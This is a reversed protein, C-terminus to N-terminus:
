CPAGLHGVSAGRVPNSQWRALAASAFVAAVPPGERGGGGQGTTSVDCGSNRVWVLLRLMPAGEVSRAEDNAIVYGILLVTGLFVRWTFVNALVYWHLLVLVHVVTAM